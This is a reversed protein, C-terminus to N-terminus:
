AGLIARILAQVDPPSDSLDAAQLLQPLQAYRHTLIFAVLAQEWPGSWGYADLLATIAARQGLFLHRTPVGLEYLADGRMADGFDLVGVLRWRGQVRALHINDDTLDAHLWRQGLPGPWGMDRLWRRLQHAWAVVQPNHRQPQRLIDGLPHEQRALQAWAQGQREFGPDQPGDLSHLAACWRGLQAAIAVREQASVQPWVQCAPQGAVRELLLYPWSQVHGQDVLRPLAVGQQGALTELSSAALRELRAELAWLPCCLKLILSPGVAYVINSGYPIRELALGQLGLRRCLAEVIPTWLADQDFVRSYSELDDLQPMM